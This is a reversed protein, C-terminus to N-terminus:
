FLPVSDRPHYHKMGSFLAFSRGYSRFGLAPSVRFFRSPCAELFTPFGERGPSVGGDPPDILGDGPPCRELGGSASNSPPAREKSPFVSPQTPHAHPLRPVGFAYQKMGPVQHRTNSELTTCSSFWRWNSLSITIRFHSLGDPSCTPPTRCKISTRIKLRTTLVAHSISAGYIHVGATGSDIASTVGDVCSRQQALSYRVVKTEHLLSGTVRIGCFVPREPCLCSNM